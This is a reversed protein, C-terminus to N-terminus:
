ILFNCGTHQTVTAISPIPICQLFLLEFSLDFPSVFRFIFVFLDCVNRLCM